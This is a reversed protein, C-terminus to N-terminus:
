NEPKPILKKENDDDDNCVRVAHGHWELFFCLQSALCPRCGQQKGGSEKKTKPADM